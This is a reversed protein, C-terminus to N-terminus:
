NLCYYYRHPEQRFRSMWVNDDYYYSYTVVAEGRTCEYHEMGYGGRKVMVNEPDYHKECYNGSGGYDYCYGMALVAKGGSSATTYSHNSFSLSRADDELAAAPGALALLAAAVPVTLLRKLRM